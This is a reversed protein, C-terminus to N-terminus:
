WVYLVICRWGGAAPLLSETHRQYVEKEEHSVVILIVRSVPRGRIETTKGSILLSFVPIIHLAKKLGTSHFHKDSLAKRFTNRTNKGPVSQMLLYRDATEM